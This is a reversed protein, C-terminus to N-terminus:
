KEGSKQNQADTPNKITIVPLDSFKPKVKDMAAIIENTIDAGEAFDLAGQKPLILDAKKVKRWASIEENMRKAVVANVAQSEIALQRNLAQAGENLAKQRVDEPQNYYAARLDDYGKELARRAESLHEQGARATESQSFVKEVDVVYVGASFAMQPLLLLAVGLYFIRKKNKLSFNM